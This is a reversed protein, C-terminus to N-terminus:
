SSLLNFNAEGDPEDVKSKSPVMVRQRNEADKMAHKRTTQYDSRLTRHNIVQVFLTSLDEKTFCDKEDGWEHLDLCGLNTCPLNRLFAMCYKTTGYSARVVESEGGPSATGDVAAIARAADERRNYTIYMGLVSAGSSSDTRKVLVIKSIKGYKGFYEASRLSPILQLCTLNRSVCIILDVEQM